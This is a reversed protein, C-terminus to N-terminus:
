PNAGLERLVAVIARIALPVKFANGPLPQATALEAEAAQRYAPEGAVAGRLANEALTARWPLHAV